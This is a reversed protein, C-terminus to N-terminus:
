SSLEAKAWRLYVIEEQHRREIEAHRREEEHLRADYSVHAVQSSSSAMVGYGLEMVYSLRRGHVEDYIDDDTLPTSGEVLSHRERTEPLWEDMTWHHTRQYVDIWGPLQGIEIDRLEYQYQAFLKSGGYHMVTLRSRSQSAKDYYAKCVYPDRVHCEIPMVYGPPIIIRMRERAHARRWEELKENRTAGRTRRIMTDTARRLEWQWDGNGIAGEEGEM